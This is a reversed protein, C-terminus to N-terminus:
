LRRWNVFEDANECVYRFVWEAQEADGLENFPMLRCGKAKFGYEECLGMQYYRAETFVFACHEVADEYGDFAVQEYHSAAAERVEPNFMNDIYLEWIEDFTAGEKNNYERYLSLFTRNSM